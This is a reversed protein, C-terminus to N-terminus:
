CSDETQYIVTWERDRDKERGRKTHRDTQRDRDKLPGPNLVRVGHVTVCFGTRAAQVGKPQWDCAVTLQHRRPDHRLNGFLGRNEVMIVFRWLSFCSGRTLASPAVASLETTMTVMLPLAPSIIQRSLKLVVQVMGVSVQCGSQKRYLYILIFKYQTINVILIRLKLYTTYRSDDVKTWILANILPVLQVYGPFPTGQVSGGKHFWCWKTQYCLHNFMLLLRIIMM